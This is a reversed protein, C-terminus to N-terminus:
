RSDHLSGRHYMQFFNIIVIQNQIIVASNITFTKQGQKSTVHSLVIAIGKNKLNKKCLADM